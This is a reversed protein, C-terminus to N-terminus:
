WDTGLSNGDTPLVANTWTNLGIGANVTRVRGDGMGVMVLSPHFGQVTQWIPAGPTGITTPNFQPLGIGQSPHAFL